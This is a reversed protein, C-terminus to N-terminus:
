FEEELNFQTEYCWDGSADDKAEIMSTSNLKEQTGYLLIGEGEKPIFIIPESVSSTYNIDFYNNIVDTESTATTTFSAKMYSNNKSAVIQGGETRKKNGQAAFQYKLTKPKINFDIADEAAMVGGIQMTDGTSDAILYAIEISKVNPIPDYTYVNTVLTLSEIERTRTTLQENTVSIVASGSNKFTISQLGLNTSSMDLLALSKISATNTLTITITHTTLGTHSESFEYAKLVSRDYINALPRVATVTGSSATHATSAINNDFVSKQILKSM